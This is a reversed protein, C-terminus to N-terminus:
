GAVRRATSERPMLQVPLIVDRAPSGTEMMAVLLDFAQGALGSVDQQLTTLSPRIRGSWSIGDFGCVLVEDPVGYGLDESEFVAGIAQMDTSAFIADVQGGALLARTGARGGDLSYPQQVVHAPDLRAGLRHLEAEFGRRRLAATPLKPPGEILGPVKAGREVLHRAALRGGAENDSYVGGVGAVEVIEDLAVVPLGFEVLARVAPLDPGTSLLLLGDTSSRLSSLATSERAPEFDTNSLVVSRDTEAAFREISRVIEAFFPNTVDPVVLGITNLRGTRLSRASHNGRYDLEEAARVVREVFDPSVYRNGSLANSATAVSVGARLAVEILRISRTTM